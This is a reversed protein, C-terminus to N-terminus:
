TLVVATTHTHTHTDHKRFMRWRAQLVGTECTEGAVGNCSALLIDHPGSHRSYRAKELLARRSVGESSAKNSNLQTTARGASSVKLNFATTSSIAASAVLLFLFGKM